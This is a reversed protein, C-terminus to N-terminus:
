DGCSIGRRALWGRLNLGRDVKELGLICVKMVRHFSDGVGVKNKLIMDGRLQGCELLGDEVSYVAELM